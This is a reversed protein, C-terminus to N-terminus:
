KGLNVPSILCIHELILRLSSRPNNLYEKVRVLEQLFFTNEAEGKKIKEHCVAILSSLFNGVAIKDKEKDKLFLQHVFELKEPYDLVLFDQIIKNENLSYTSFSQNTVQLRSVLTEPMMAKNPVVFFFNANLSPEELTKLLANSAELTINNCAIIFYINSISLSGRSEKSIIEHANKIGFSDVEFFYIDPCSNLNELNLEKKLLNKIFSLWYERQGVLLHAPFTLDLM